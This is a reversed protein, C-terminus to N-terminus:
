CFDEFVEGGTWERGLSLTFYKEAGEESFFTRISEHIFKGDQFRVEALGYNTVGNALTTIVALVNGDDSIGARYVCSEYVDTRAFVADESLNQLYDLLPTESPNKPCLPFEAPVKWNLQMAGPTLSPKLGYIEEYLRRNEEEIQEKQIEWASKHPERTVWENDWPEGFGDNGDEFIWDGIEGRTKKNLKEEKDEQSWRSLNKLCKAAEEKTVTRMWKTNPESSSERLKAPNKLFAEISGGYILEIRRRTIPNNLVNELRTLWRLNEPRNNCRNTDIHDVIMNLDEPVGHFATAVIQHVRAGGYIMYGHVDKTGFTWRNDLKSPQIGPKSHRFISGNDRVSYHRGKFDCEKVETFISLIEEM